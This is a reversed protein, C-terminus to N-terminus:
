HGASTLAPSDQGSIVALTNQKQVRMAHVLAKAASNTLKSEADLLREIAARHEKELQPLLYAVSVFNIQMYWAPYPDMPLLRKGQRNLWAAAAKAAAMEQDACQQLRALEHRDSSTFLPFSECAYLLLTRSEDHLIKQLIQCTQADIV